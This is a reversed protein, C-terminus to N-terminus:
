KLSNDEVNSFLIISFTLVIGSIIFLSSNKVYIGIPILLIGLALVLPALNKKKM